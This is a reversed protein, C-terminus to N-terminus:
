IRIVDSSIKHAQSVCQENRTPQCKDGPIMDADERKLGLKMNALSPLLLTQDCPTHFHLGRVICLWTEGAVHVGSWVNEVLGELLGVVM